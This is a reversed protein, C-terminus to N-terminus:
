SIVRSALEPSGRKITTASRRHAIAWKKGAVRELVLVVIKEKEAEITIPQLM